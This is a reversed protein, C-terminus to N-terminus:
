KVASISRATKRRVVLERQGYFVEALKKKKKKTHGESMKAFIHLEIKCNGKRTQFFFHLSHSFSSYLRYQLLKRTNAHWMKKISLVEINIFIQWKVIDLKRIWCKFNKYCQFYVSQVWREDITKNGTSCFIFRLLLLLSLWEKDDSRMSFVLWWHASVKM